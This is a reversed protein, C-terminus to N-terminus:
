KYWTELIQTPRYNRWLIAEPPQGGLASLPIAGIIESEAVPVGEWKALEQIYAFLPPLPTKHPLTLNLSVQVKQQSHLPLGLARVGELEPRSARERRIQRAIREAVGIDQTYLNVNYAVLPARAGVVTVGASPHALSSGRDPAREGILPLSQLAEFGGKRLAPLASVRGPQASWEYFYIPIGLEEALAVGIRNALDIAAEKPTEKLPVIPLVDIAGIRPHVGTHTRLDIHQIAYRASRLCATYIAETGGLLTMVCRHHDPDASYDILRVGAVSNIADAIGLVVELCRGESFNPICQYIPEAMRKLREEIGRL